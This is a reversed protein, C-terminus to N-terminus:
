RRRLEALKWPVDHPQAARTASVSAPRYFPNPKHQDDLVVSSHTAIADIIATPLRARDYQCMGMGHSNEFFRNLHAEYEVVHTSGPADDLLWSMDGCTRLGSFGAQLSEDLTQNLMELMRESDFCGGVLHAEHKTRLLLAGRREADLVDIGLAKIGRRFENLEESSGAAYLCREGKALGDRIYALAVARQEDRTDYVACIHQGHGLEDRANLRSNNREHGAAHSM